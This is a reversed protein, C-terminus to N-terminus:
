RFAASSVAARRQARTTRTADYDVSLNDGDGTIVVGYAERAHEITEWRGLVDTLVREPDRDLPDGYGGGSCEVGRVAQGAQLTLVVNNPLRTETGDTDLLWGAARAGDQGGHVGKPANIQGDCSSIISVGDERSEYAMDVTCGGRHRGPGGSDPLMRVHRYLIPMKLEDIEISDRYTLGATGPMNWTLWGDSTASGPGGAAGMLMQNVFPQDTRSDHGSIVAHPIGMGVPGEAIGFPEGLQAFASSVCMTLRDYLNTTAVSCSYPFELIGVAAGQKLRVDM